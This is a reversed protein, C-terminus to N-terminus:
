PEYDFDGFPPTHKARYAVVEPIEDIKTRISKTLPYADLSDTPVGDLMGSTLWSSLAYFNLDAITLSDGVLWGSGNEKVMKELLGFFFPLGGETAEVFRNRIAMIEEKSWDEDGILSKKANRVSLEIPRMCEDMTDMISDVQAAQVLDNPYLNTLKGVLRLMAVSQGIQQGDVELVPLSSPAVM